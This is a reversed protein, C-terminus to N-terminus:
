KLLTRPRRRRSRSTPRLSRRKRGRRLRLHLRLPPRSPRQKRRRRLRPILLPSRLRRRIKKKTTKSTPIITVSKKKRKKNKKKTKEAESSTSIIATKKKETAPSNPTTTSKKKKETSITITTETSHLPPWTSLQVENSLQRCVRRFKHAVIATGEYSTHLGDRALLHVYPDSFAPWSVFRFNKKLAAVEALRWNVIRITTNFAKVAEWDEKTPVPNVWRDPLIPLIGAIVIQATPSKLRLHEYFRQFRRIVTDWTWRDLIDNIGAFM